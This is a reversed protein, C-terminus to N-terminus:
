KTSLRGSRFAKLYSVCYDDEGELMARALAFPEATRDQALVDALKSQVPDIIASDIGADVALVIFTENVLKRNPIGFSVNSLGGTIHIEPGYRARIARVADLYHRGHSSDVSIPIVLPDVHIHELPIGAAHQMLQSVNAVREDADKPMSGIGSAGAVVDADFERALDLTDLRELAASNLM